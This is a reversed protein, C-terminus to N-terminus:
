KAVFRNIFADISSNISLLSNYHCVDNDRLLDPDEV